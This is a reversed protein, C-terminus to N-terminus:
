LLCFCISFLFLHEKSSVAGVSGVLRELVHHESRPAVSLPTAAALDAVTAVDIVVVRRGHLGILYKLPVDLLDLLIELEVMTLQVVVPLIRLTFELLLFLLNVVQEVLPVSVVDDLTLLDAKLRDLATIAVVGSEAQALTLEGLCVCIKQASGGANQLIVGIERHVQATANVLVVGRGQLDLLLELHWAVVGHVTEAEDTVVTKILDLLHAFLDQLLELVVIEIRIPGLHKHEQDRIM